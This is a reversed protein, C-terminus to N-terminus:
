YKTKSIIKEFIECSLKVFVEKKAIVDLWGKPINDHGYYCGALGGALAGITDTDNGLNVAKLVCEEYSTTNIFCWIVAELTDIVYGSSKIQNESVEAFKEINRLRLFTNLDEEFDDDEKHLMKLNKHEYFKIIRGVSESVIEIKSKNSKCNIINSILGSYVACSIISRIHGHTLKSVNEIIQLNEDLKEFFNNSLYLAIPLIRMLSGNGNEYVSKGGCEIPEEGKGYSIIARSTSIGIDFVEGYPTYEKEMLWSYFSDMLKKYFTYNNEVNNKSIMDLTALVMSSDDSWTGKPQNYTGFERMNTVPLKKLTERSTFEVPVGLADGVVFGIIGSLVYNNKYM